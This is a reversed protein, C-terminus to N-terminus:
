VKAGCEFCSAGLGEGHHVIKKHQCVASTEGAARNPRGESCIGCVNDALPMGHPCFEKREGAHRACYLGDVPPNICGESQCRDNRWLPATNKTVASGLFGDVLEDVRESRWDEDGRCLRQVITGSIRRRLWRYREADRQVDSPPQASGSSGCVSCDVTKGAGDTVVGSGKCPQCEGILTSWLDRPHSGCYMEETCGALIMSLFAELRQVRATAPEHTPDKSM